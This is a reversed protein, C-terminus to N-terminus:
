LLKLSLIELKFTKKRPVIEFAELNLGCPKLWFIPNHAQPPIKSSKPFIPM